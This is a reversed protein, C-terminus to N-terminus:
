GHPILDADRAVIGVMIQDVALQGLHDLDLGVADGDLCAVPVDGQGGVLRQVQVIGIGAGRMAGLPQGAVPHQVVRFTEAAGRGLVGIVDTNRPFSM